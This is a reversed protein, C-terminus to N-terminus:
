RSKETPPHPSLDILAGVNDSHRHENMKVLLVCSLMTLLLCHVKGDCNGILEKTSWRSILNCALKQGRVPRENVCCKRVDLPLRTDAM